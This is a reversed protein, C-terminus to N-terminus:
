SRRRVTVVILNAITIKFSIYESHGSSPWIIPLFVYGCM